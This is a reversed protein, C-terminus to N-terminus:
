KGTELASSQEWCGDVQGGRMCTELKACKECTKRSDLFDAIKIRAKPKLKDGADIVRGAWKAVPISGRNYWSQVTQVPVDGLLKALETAGTFKNLIHKHM